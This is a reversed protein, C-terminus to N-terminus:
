APIIVSSGSTLGSQLDRHAKVVDSIPYRQNISVKLVGRMLQDFVLKASERLEQTDATYTVLTPRTFYLSGQKQLMAGTVPPPHGTTQGFSVFFGRPALSNFSAEFSDKGVSDFVVAVGKGGTLERTRAAIDDSKRDLCVEYGNHRALDCKQPGGAVGIMRAGLHKGWQGALLGVGGAAAHFLVAQGAKVPYCRHMLYEVTMGKLLIAAAQDDQVGNPTHLLRAAPFNRHTSYAEFVPGSAYCVRDGEKFDTVGAGVKEVVGAAENGLGFPTPGPYLGSRMYIDQFNLGIATHRLTVEGPRPDPLTAEELKIAEPEGPTYVRAVIRKTM